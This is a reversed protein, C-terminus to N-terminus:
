SEGGVQARVLLLGPRWDLRVSLSRDDVVVELEGDIAPGQVVVAVAVEGFSM